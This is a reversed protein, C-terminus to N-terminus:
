LRMQGQFSWCFIKFPITKIWKFLSLMNIMLSLAAPHGGRVINVCRTRSVVADWAFLSAVIFGSATPMAPIIMNLSYIKNTRWWIILIWSKESVFLRTVHYHLPMPCPHLLTVTPVNQWTGFVCSQQTSTCQSIPVLGINARYIGNWHQRVAYLKLTVQWM